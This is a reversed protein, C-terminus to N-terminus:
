AVFILVFVMGGIFLFFSFLMVIFLAIQLALRPRGFILRDEHVKQPDLGDIVLVYEGPRPIAFAKWPRQTAAFGSSRFYYFAAWSRVYTNASPDWLGVAQRFLVFFLQRPGRVYLVHDGPSQFRVTQSPLPLLPETVYQGTQLRLFRTLAAIGGAAGAVVFVLGVWILWRDSPSRSQRPPALPQYESPPHGDIRLITVENAGSTEMSAVVPEGGAFRGRCEFKQEFDLSQAPPCELSAIERGTVSAIVRRVEADYTPDLRYVPETPQQPLPTAPIGAGLLLALVGWLHATKRM